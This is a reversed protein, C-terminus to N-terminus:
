RGTEELADFSRQGRQRRGERELWRRVGQNARAMLRRRLYNPNAPLPMAAAAQLVEVVLQQRIDEADMVPPYPRLRQLSALLAPALVDLLVPGWIRRPGARYALVVAFLGSVRGGSRGNLLVRARAVAIRDAESLGDDMRRFGERLDASLSSEM